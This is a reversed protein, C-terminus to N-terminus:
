MKVYPALEEDVKYEGTQIMCTVKRVFVPSILDNIDMGYTNLHSIDVM